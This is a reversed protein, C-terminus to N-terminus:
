RGRPRGLCRQSELPLRHCVQLHPLQKGPVHAAAVPVSLANTGVLRIVALSGSRCARRAHRLGAAALVPHYVADVLYHFGYRGSSDCHHWVRNSDTVAIGRLAMATARELLRSDGTIRHTAVLLSIQAQDM